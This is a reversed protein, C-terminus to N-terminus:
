APIVDFRALSDDGLKLIDTLHLDIGEDVRSVGLGAIAPYGDGGFVKAAQFWEIRNVLKEQMLSAALRAGGEVLLRTVGCAGIERLAVSMDMVRDENMPVEILTVGCAAFAKARDPDVGPLTLIWLPTEQASRVLASTMPLRLRGDAVIRIPSRGGLGALRCTLEPDDVIATASGIMIADAEARILHLRDHAGQGTLWQNEGMHTASRGDLTTTLKLTVLPRGQAIQRVYGENLRRAEDILVGSLVEVGAKQLAEVGKGSRAGDPHNLGIVVRTIKARILASCDQPENTLYACAGNALAGARDLAANEAQQPTSSSAWGRGVIRPS